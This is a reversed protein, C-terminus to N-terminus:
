PGRFRRSSLRGHPQRRGSSNGVMEDGDADV